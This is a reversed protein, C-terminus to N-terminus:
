MQNQSASRWEVGRASLASTNKSQASQWPLTPACVVFTSIDMTSARATAVIAIAIRETQMATIIRTILPLLCPIENTKEIDEYLSSITENHFRLRHNFHEREEEISLTIYTNHLLQLRNLQLTIYSYSKQHFHGLAADVSIRKRHHEKATRYQELKTTVQFLLHHQYSAPAIERQILIKVIYYLQGYSDIGVDQEDLKKSVKLSSFM